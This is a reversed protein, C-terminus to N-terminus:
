MEEDVIESLFLLALHFHPGFGHAREFLGVFLGVEREHQLDDVAIVGYGDDDDGRVAGHLGVAVELHAGLRGFFDFADHELHGAAHLRLAVEYADAEVVVLEHLDAVVLADHEFTQCAIGVDLQADDQDKDDHGDEGEEAAFAGFLVFHPNPQGLFRCM